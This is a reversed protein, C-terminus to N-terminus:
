IFLHNMFKLIHALCSYAMVYHFGAAWIRGASSEDKKTGTGMSGQLVQRRKVELMRATQMLQCMEATNLFGNNM